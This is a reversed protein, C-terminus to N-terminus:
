PKISSAKIQRCLSTALLWRKARCSSQPRGTARRCHVCPGRGGASGADSVLNASVYAGRIREPEAGTSVNFSQNSYAAVADFVQTQKTYDEYEALRQPCANSTSHATTVGFWKCGIPTQFRCSSPAACCKRRQIDGHERRYWACAHDCGGGCFWAAQISRKTRLASRELKKRSTQLPPGGHGGMASCNTPCTAM